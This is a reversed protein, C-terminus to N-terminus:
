NAPSRGCLAARAQDRPERLWRHLKPHRKIARPEVRNPRDGVQHWAIVRFQAEALAILVEPKALSAHDWSTAVAALAAAFSLQRPLKEHALAAQAMTKRIIDGENQAFCANEAEFAQEIDDESFPLGEAQLFAQRLM